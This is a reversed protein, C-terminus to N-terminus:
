LINRGGLHIDQIRGQLTGQGLVSSGSGSSRVPSRVTSLGHDKGSLLLLEENFPFLTYLFFLVSRSTPLPPTYTTIFFKSKNSLDPSNCSWVEVEYGRALDGANSFLIIAVQYAVLTCVEPTKKKDLATRCIHHITQSM